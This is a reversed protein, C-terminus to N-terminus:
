KSYYVEFEVRRNEARGTESLNNAIPKTEGHGHSYLRAGDVEHAILSEKVHLARDESLKVNSDHDGVNDTHGTINLKTNPFKNLIKSFETVRADFAPKLISSGSEFMDNNPFIVQIKDNIMKTQANPFSAKIMDFANSIYTSKNVKCASMLTISCLAVLLITNLKM